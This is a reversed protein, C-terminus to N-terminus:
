LFLGTQSLHVKHEWLMPTNPQHSMFKVEGRSPVGFLEFKLVDLPGSEILFNISGLRFHIVLSLAGLVSLVSTHAKLRKGWHYLSHLDISIITKEIFVSHSDDHTFSSGNGTPPTPFAAAAEPIHTWAPSSSLRCQTVAGRGWLVSFWNSISEVKRLAPLWEWNVWIIVSFAEFRVFWM